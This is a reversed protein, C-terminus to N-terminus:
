FAIATAASALTAFLAVRWDFSVDRARPLELAAARVIEGTTWWALAIGAAGGAGALLVSETLLQAAIRSPSAGLAGRLAIEHTRTTTRVLLLNMVNACALALVIAVAGLLLFLPQRVSRTVI